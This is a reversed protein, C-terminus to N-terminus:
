LDQPFVSSMCLISTIHEYPYHSNSPSRRAIVPVVCADHYDLPINTYTYTVLTWPPKNEEYYEKCRPESKVLFKALRRIVTIDRCDLLTAVALNRPLHRYENVIDGLPLRLDSFLVCQFLFHFEDGLSNCHPCLRDERPVGSWRGTEIPLWHNGTRFRSLAVAQGSSVRSVYWAGELVGINAALLTYIEGKASLFCEQFVKVLVNLLCNTKFDNVFRIRKDIKNECWLEGYGNETLCKRVDTVWGLDAERLLSYVKKALTVPTNTNVLKSWYAIQRSIADVEIPKCGSELIVM